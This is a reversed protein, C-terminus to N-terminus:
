RKLLLEAARWGEEIARHVRGSGATYDGAFLLNPIARNLLEWDAGGDPLAFRWGQRDAWLPSGLDEALLASLLGAVYTTLEPLPEDWHQKSAHPGLQAVVVAAGGTDRGPKAHEYALWSLPHQKDSNVLAYYPRERLAPYGLTLTLCPRYQAKALEGLLAARAQEPLVSAAILEATQPAPPTLLLADFVGLPQQDVDYLKFSSGDYDFRGIRRQFRIDLGAALQKALQTIGGAYTWKGERNQEPDGPAITDSADFTWVPAPIDLPEAGGTRLLERLEDNPAKIYQAGHDFVAGHARRTAARGGVGRSKELITIALEPRTQRLRHAAALGALGAGVIALHM